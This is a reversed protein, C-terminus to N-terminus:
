LISNDVRLSFAITKILNLMLVSLFYDLDKKREGNGDMEQM